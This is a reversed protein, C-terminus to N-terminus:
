SRENGLTEDPVVSQAIAPNVAFFTSSAIAGSLGVAIAGQWNHTGM